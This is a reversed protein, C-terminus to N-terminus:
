QAVKSSLLNYSKQEAPPKQLNLVEWLSMRFMLAGGRGRETRERKWNNFDATIVLAAILDKVTVPTKLVSYLCNCMSPSLQGSHLDM